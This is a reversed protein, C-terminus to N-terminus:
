GETKEEYFNFYWIYYISLVPGGLLMLFPVLGGTGDAIYRLAQIVLAIGLVAFFIGIVLNQPRRHLWSQTQM